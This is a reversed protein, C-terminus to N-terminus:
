KKRTYVYETALFETGGKGSVPTWYLRVVQRDKGPELRLRQRFTANELNGFQPVVFNQALFFWIPGPKPLDGPTTLNASPQYMMQPGRTDWSVYEYKSEVANYNLLAVRTFGPQDAHPAAKMVEELLLEGVLHREAEAYLEVPQAEASTWTRAFVSWAGDMQRLIQPAANEQAFSSTAVHCALVGLLARGCWRSVLLPM